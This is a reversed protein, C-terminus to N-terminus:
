RRALAHKNGLLLTKTTQTGYCRRSIDEARACTWRIRLCSALRDRLMLTLGRCAPKHVSMSAVHVCATQQCVRSSRPVHSPCTSSARVHWTYSVVHWTGHSVHRGAVHWTPLTSSNWPWSRLTMMM